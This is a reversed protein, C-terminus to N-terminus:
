PISPLNHKIVFNRLAPTLAQHKDVGQNALQDAKTNYERLVHKFSCPYGMLLKIINEKMTTLVPNKTKYEGKMQKILLLSDSVFNLHVIEDKKILPIVMGVALALAFYEAQNNTKKGLYFGAKTILKKNEDVIYIGAGAPGPNGRSAGDIFIHWSQTLKKQPQKIPDPETTAFLNQQKENAM